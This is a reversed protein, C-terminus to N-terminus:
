KGNKGEMGKGRKEMAERRREVGEAREGSGKRWRKCIM